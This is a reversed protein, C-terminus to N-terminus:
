SAAAASGAPSFVQERQKKVIYYTILSKPDEKVGRLADWFAAEGVREHLSVCFKVADMRVGSDASEICGGALSTLQGLEGENPIFELRKDLMERLVHLGMSLTRCGETTTDSCSQLRRTLVVVMESGDGLAVLEDALLELGSVVHARSDYASRTQLLSELAKSVHPRFNDREKRLLLKITTLAQAKVDQAKDAPLTPLTDELFQFLGLVLAEFKDDTFVTRSDRILSQLKRFGHVELSKAKIKAIGSDLLRSNQRAKEPSDIQEVTPEKGNPKLLNAADENVPKDELVPSTFTPRPTAQDDTFPDEYVQLTRSSSEQPIEPQTPSAILTSEADLPMRPPRPAQPSSTRISSMQPVVLTIDENAKSPSSSPITTRSQRFRSPSEKPSPIKSVQSHVAPSAVSSESAHTVHGPRTRPATRKPTTDRPKPTAHKSKLTEPSDVELSSPHDRVSYPGATAPRAAMEPRRRAPRMPAVSMGGANVATTPEPRMRTGSPKAPAAAHSSSSTTTTTRVPSIHAMASGPRAPLNKAALAKKQAMMAERLSPKSSTMTSRSLGLGPRAPPDASKKPSNPNNPDKNLLKQATSDLDAMIADARAPWVGWFAWYASRMKERVGPNADGLGKKICKEMLDVGGSHEIHSKHHAEKKLITKLWGTSYLRPQVNKDQCASWIHQMLRATYSVRGIITDVTTNALQSSIKKTGASLKVFTQMLLEVMPDMAPGFTIAIDQVLGCGEKSLSTRLSNVAKIIGDLMSRLGALFSDPFDAPANGANLKRLTGMSQERKMWNQETEKGEFHWAMERFMDELERHTNVYMPEIPEAQVDVAPTVPRESGISSVSAALNPRTPHTVDGPTDPRGGTPALAKVIAQEIAPRVKFNKLQRKLDSKAANPATKFLEIVTSKAADRVMGDADELLEMLLPVYSRFQLGQLLWQMGAEKARPNKGSMASNRVVREVDQPAVAYFTNLGHLALGRFKDKQDGLKEIVLPLTRVAEKALLKPDQRSLRTLLHNLATFGANVLASHQSSSAARLGDFLLPVSTEPVNHQKICSKVTTVLQVKADLTSDSRLIAVLDAVQQDTLKSDAM